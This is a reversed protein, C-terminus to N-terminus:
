NGYRQWWRKLLPSTFRYRSSNEIFEQFLYGETQLANIVYNFSVSDRFDAHQSLNFAEAHSLTQEQQSVLQLLKLAFQKELPELRNLRERWHSFKTTNEQAFLRNISDLVQQSDIQNFDVDDDIMQDCVLSLYYPMNWGIQEIMLQKISTSLQVSIRQNKLYFDIFNYTEENTLPSIGVETLMNILNSLSLKKALTDLGISGTFIFQVHRSFEIDQCLERISALFAKAAGVGAQEYITLLVDPFEDIALIIKIDNDKLAELLVQRVTKQTLPVPQKKIDTAIKVGVFEFSFNIALKGMSERFQRNFLKDQNIFESQNIDFLLKEYFKQESDCAQVYSYIVTYGDRPHDKLFQIMSSKGVRRPALLLLHNGSEIKRWIKNEDKPRPFYNEQYVINGTTM